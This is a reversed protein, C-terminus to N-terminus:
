RASCLCHTRERTHEKDQNLCTSNGPAVEPLQECTLKQYGMTMLFFTTQCLLKCCQGRCNVYTVEQSGPLPSCQPYLLGCFTSKTDDQVFPEITDWSTFNASHTANLEIGNTTNYPLVSRCDEPVEFCHGGPVVSYMSNAIRECTRGTYGERCRCFPKEKITFYAGGNLCTLAPTVDTAKTTNSAVCVDSSTSEPFNDCLSTWGEADTLCGKMENCLSNCPLSVFTGTKRIDFTGSTSTTSATCPPSLLLNCFFEESLYHCSFTKVFNFINMMRSLNDYLNFVHPIITRCNGMSRCVTINHVICGGADAEAEPTPMPCTHSVDTTIGSVDTTIDLVDTTIGSVDTTIGSVDTTIGESTVAVTRRPMLPVQTTVTPTSPKSGSTTFDDASMKDSTPKVNAQLNARIGVSTGILTAMTVITLLAGGAIVLRKGSFFRSPAPAGEEISFLHNFVGRRYVEDM